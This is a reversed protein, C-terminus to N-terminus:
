ARQVHVKKGDFLIALILVQGAGQARHEAAYQMEGIQQLAAELQAEAPSDEDWSKFEM